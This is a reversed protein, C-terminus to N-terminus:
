TGTDITYSNVDEFETAAEETLTAKLNPSVRPFTV